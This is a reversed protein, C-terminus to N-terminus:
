LYTLKFLAADEENNFYARAHQMIYLNAIVGPRNQRTESTIYSSLQGGVKAVYKNAEDNCMFVCGMGDFWVGAPLEVVTQTM